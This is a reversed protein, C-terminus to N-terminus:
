LRLLMAIRAGVLKAIFNFPFAAYAPADDPIEADSSRFKTQIRMQPPAADLAFRGRYASVWHGKEFDLFVGSNCCSAVVRRTASGERIRLDQLLHDGGVCSFRDKRFLLYPTGGDPERVLAANPLAEIQHGGEQCDDCYCVVSLIPAGAAEYKVSGCSCSAVLSPKSIM